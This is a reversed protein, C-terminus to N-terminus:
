WKKHVQVSHEKKSEIERISLESIIVSSVILGIYFLCFKYPLIVGEFVISMM